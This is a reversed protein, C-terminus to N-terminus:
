GSGQNVEVRVKQSLSQDGKIGEEKVRVTVKQTMEPLLALHWRMRIRLRLRVRFGLGLM